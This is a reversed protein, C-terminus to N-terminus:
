PVAVVLLLLTLFKGILHQKGEANLNINIQCWFSCDSVFMEASLHTHCRRMGHGM